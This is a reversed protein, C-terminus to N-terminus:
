RQLLLSIEVDLKNQDLLYILWYIGSEVHALWLLGVLVATSPAPPLSILHNTNSQRDRQILSALAEGVHWPLKTLGIVSTQQLQRKGIVNPLISAKPPETGSVLSFGFDGNHAQPDGMMRGPMLRPKQSGTAIVSTVRVGNQM